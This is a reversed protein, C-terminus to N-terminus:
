NRRSRSKQAEFRKLVHLEVLDEVRKDLQELQGAQHAVMESLREAQVRLRQNEELIAALRERVTIVTMAIRSLESLWKRLGTTEKEPKQSPSIREEPKVSPPEAM